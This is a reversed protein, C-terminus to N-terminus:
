IPDENVQHDEKGEIAKVVLDMLFTMLFIQDLYIPFLVQFISTQFVVEEQHGKLLPMALSIM